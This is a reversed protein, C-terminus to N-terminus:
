QKKLLNIAFISGNEVREIGVDKTLSKAVVRM